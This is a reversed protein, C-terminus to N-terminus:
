PHLTVLLLAVEITLALFFRSSSRVTAGKTEEEHESLEPYAVADAEM